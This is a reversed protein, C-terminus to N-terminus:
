TEAHPQGTPWAAALDLARKREVLIDDTGDTSFIRIMDSEPYVVAGV